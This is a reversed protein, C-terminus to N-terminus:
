FSFNYNSVTSHVTEARRTPCRSLHGVRSDGMKKDEVNKVLEGRQPMVVEVEQAEM